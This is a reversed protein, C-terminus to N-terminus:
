PNSYVTQRYAPLSESNEAKARLGERWKILATGTWGLRRKKEDWVGRSEM